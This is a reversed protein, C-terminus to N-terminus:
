SKTPPHRPQRPHPGLEATPVGSWYSFCWCTATPAAEYAPAQVARAVLSHRGDAGVTVTARETVTAGGRKDRGRVGTVREGDCILDEVVFGACNPGPRSPPTSWSGTSCRAGRVTLSRSEMWACTRATLPFDDFDTTLAQVAPCGTSVLRDLLGWRKLRGPGDMHIFHGHPRNSPFNARHVLLVRLGQRALLM